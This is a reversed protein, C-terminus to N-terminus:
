ALVHAFESLIATTEPRLHTDQIRVRQAPQPRPAARRVASVPLERPRTPVPTGRDARMARRPLQRVSGNRRALVDERRAIDRETDVGPMEEESRVEGVHLVRRRFPPQVHRPGLALADRIFLDKGDDGRNTRARLLYVKGM